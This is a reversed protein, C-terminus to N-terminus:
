PIVRERVEVLLISGWSIADWTTYETDMEDSDFRVHVYFKASGIIIDADLPPVTHFTIKGTANDLSYTNAGSVAETQAVGGVTVASVTGAQLKTIWRDYYFNSILYRKKIQFITKVGDGIAITQAELTDDKNDWFKFSYARGQMVMFWNLLEEFTDPKKMLHSIDYRARSAGWNINRKEFGSNLSLVTTDFMPGGRFGYALGTPFLVDRFATM